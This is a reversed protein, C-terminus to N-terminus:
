TGGIEMASNGKSAMSVNCLALQASRRTIPIGPHNRIPDHFGIRQLVFPSIIMPYSLPNNDM